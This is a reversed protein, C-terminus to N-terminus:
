KKLGMIFEQVTKKAALAKTIDEDITDEAVIDIRTIKKHIESGGRYNRAESQLDDTLSFNKLYHIGYSAATLNM